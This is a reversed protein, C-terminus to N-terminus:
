DAEADAEADVTLATAIESDTAFSLADNPVRLVLTGSPVDLFAYSDRSKADMEIKLTVIGALNRGAVAPQEERARDIGRAVTELADSVYVGLNPAYTKLVEQDVDLTVEHGIRTKVAQAAIALRADEPQIALFPQPPTSVGASASFPSLPSLAGGSGDACGALLAGSVALAALAVSTAVSALPGRTM